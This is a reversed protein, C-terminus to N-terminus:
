AVTEPKSSLKNQLKRIIDLVLSRSHAANIAFATFGYVVAGVCAKLLLEVFDPLHEISEPLALVVGAMVLCALSSKWLAKFPLPLPFTKRAVIFSLVLGIGYAALTAWVAGQLGYLPILWINLGINLLVPPVMMWALLGTKRSLVFARQAYYTIFGNLVGAFAIWPMIKVAEARVSEGLIFGAPEAVLAIGTAAPLVILLLLEGYNKLVKKTKKLGEQELTTIAIPTVAMGIWVFIIDLSRNALNYGANYQGVSTDDMFYSIMFLDGQSLIYGLVLSLCIPMGYAFYHRIRAMEVRGGRMRRFMFPLDVLIAVLNGAIIGYFPAVERLHTTLILIIGVSFGLLSQSSQIASFRGIRHAAKHAEIGINYILTLCTTAFAFALLTKMLPALPLLWVLAMLLPLGVLGTVAGAVYCTKIHSALEGRKKARAYYRYMAAEVWTFLVMHIFHMSAIALAYRGFEAGSFLRTLIAITGFSIIVNALNVPIYELIQKFM